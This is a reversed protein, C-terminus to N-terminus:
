ESSFENRVLFCFLLLLLSFSFFFFYHCDSFASSIYFPLSNFYFSAVIFCKAVFSLRSPNYIEIKKLHIEIATANFQFESKM